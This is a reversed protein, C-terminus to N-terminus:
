RKEEEFRALVQVSRAAREQSLGIEAPIFYADASLTISFPQQGAGIEFVAEGVGPAGRLPFPLTADGLRVTVAPLSGAYYTPDASTLRLVLKGGQAPPGIDLRAEPGMWRGGEQMGDVFGHAYRVPSAADRCSALLRGGEEAALSALRAQLAADLARVEPDLAAATAELYALGHLMDPELACGEGWENWANIFVLREEAPLESVAAVAQSLWQRYREPSAGLLIVSDKPRRPTNDWRPTVCPYRRYGPLPKTRQRAVFADYDYVRHEGFEPERRPEGLNAWDPQFEVGADFGISHPNDREASMGEMKCLHLGPLGAELAMARWRAATAAPDPLLRTRYVLLLPKGQVRVYRPDKMFRLLLRFHAIDDAESHRQEILLERNGGDWNRSWNENAWCLCFPFAIDSALYNELPTELLRRGHFWYHYFCFAHVGYREALAAQTRMVEPDALDYWGLRGAGAMGPFPGQFPILPMSHGAFAPKARQVNCWETFGAGWWADNEPITHFQPLYLALLRASPANKATGAEQSETLVPLPMVERISRLAKDASCIEAVMARGAASFRAWLGDDGLLALCAAAFASATDAILCNVGSQLPFGEAGIATTVIPLGCAAASGVKGKMGAGYTLPCVFLRYRGLAEELSSVFGVLRVGAVDALEACQTDAEAGVLHFEVEPRVARVRPLVERVFWRAADRNHQVTYNGLFVMHQRSTVPPIDAVPEHINPIVVVPACQPVAQIIDQADQSTVTVVADALPYLLQEVALFMKAMRMTEEDKDSQYRRQHKKAHFDMTDVIVRPVIAQSNKDERYSKVLELAQVAWEVTWINTLWLCDPQLDNLCARMAEASLSIRHFRVHRGAAEAYHADRSTEMFYLYDVSWGAERMFHLLHFVRLHSSSADYRPMMDSVVCVRPRPSAPASAKPAVPPAAAIRKGLLARDNTLVSEGPRPAPEHAALRHSWKGVFTNRNVALYRRYGKAPDLGATTSGFHVVTSAPEYLVAKGRERLAFCLDTEEYYAPSYRMDFGGLQRFLDARVLLSAGSCYDVECPRNYRPRAPHDHRGFNSATGDRHVVAAAEQLTNDPYILRSGVAGAWPATDLQRVLSTLWGPLPITDNNLFLLYEGTAAQAGQNCAQTFGLNQANRIVHIGKRTALMAPTEDSSGNDVVIVEFAPYSTNAAVAKLCQRTYAANNFAPIIVSVKRATAPVAPAAVPLAEPRAADRVNVLTATEQAVRALLRVLGETPTARCEPYGWRVHAWRRWAAQELREFLAVATAAAAEQHAELAAALRVFVVPDPNVGVTLGRAMHLAACIAAADLADDPGCEPTAAWALVRLHPLGAAREMASVAAPSALFSDPLVVICEVDDRLAALAQGLAGLAAVPDDPNNVIISCAYRADGPLEGDAKPFLAAVAASQRNIFHTRERLDKAAGIRQAYAHIRRVAAASLTIRTAHTPM